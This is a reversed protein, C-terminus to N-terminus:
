AGDDLLGEVVGVLERVDFPKDLVAEAGLKRARRHTRQDGFATILIVRVDPQHDRLRQLVELGSRGPMKIDSVLIEPLWPHGNFLRDELQHGDRVLQVDIGANRFQAELLARMDEDDEAILVQGDRISASM